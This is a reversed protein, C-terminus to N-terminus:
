YSELPLKTYIDCETNATYLKIVKDFVLKHEVFLSNWQAGSGLATVTTSIM